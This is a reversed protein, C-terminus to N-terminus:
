EKAKLTIDIKVDVVKAVRDKVDNPVKIAFDDINVQLTCNGVLEGNKVKLKAPQKINRAQGHISLEGEATISYEGDKSLDITQFEIIKGKFTAKPYTDSEMYTEHFHKDATALPLEFAKILVIAVFEGNSADLIAAVKNNSGDIDIADTHSKFYVYGAKTMYKQAQGSICFTVFLSLLIIKYIM